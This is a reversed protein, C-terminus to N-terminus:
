RSFRQIVEILAIALDHEDRLVADSALQRVEALTGVQSVEHVLVGNSRLVELNDKLVKEAPAASDDYYSPRTDEVRFHVLQAGQKETLDKAETLGLGTLQRVAKIVTVRNYDRHDPFIINFHKSIM